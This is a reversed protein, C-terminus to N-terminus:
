AALEASAQKVKRTAEDAASTANAIDAMGSSITHVGSAAVQMNNSIERTLADQEEVAAAITGSIENIQGITKTIIGIAEAADTTAAQIQAIQNTIEDTARATQNALSKVESAVVAFGKGAEGARAAEITANLALLNTQGAIGTILRIVEGIRSAAEVLGTMIQNARGAQEVSDASIHLAHTTQQGIEKVSQALQETGSAMANVNTAAEQSANAALLARESATSIAQTIAGLDTDIARGLTGRRTQEYVQTTIDTAFKVVKFPRGAADIIPNYSAQIWVERGGKGIRRYEAAQYEGRNLAAWFNRYSDSAREAPEVFISHHKGQIEDLRYGMVDLFNQNADLITGDLGFQIVAQSKSIAKIQGEYDAAQRVRATIDTAFKVVKFPKGTADLIPNYSAQIWVERGGKGLRRFEAAQYEGRNLMAWFNRYSDSTREAPEVFISHHKGQIEDLRYGMANLFHANATLITGDMSFEIMAQSADLANLKAKLEAGPWSFHWRM